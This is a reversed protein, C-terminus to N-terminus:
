SKRDLMTIWHSILSWQRYSICHTNTLRAVVAVRENHYTKRTKLRSMDEGVVLRGRWRDIDTRCWRDPHTWMGRTALRGVTRWM